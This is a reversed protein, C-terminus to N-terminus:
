AFTEAMDDLAPGSLQNHIAAVLAIFYIGITLGFVIMAIFLGIVGAGNPASGASPIGITLMVMLLGIGGIVLAVMLFLLFLKLAHGRTLQWSRGIAHIPNRQDENAVVPLVMSLRMGLYAFGMLLALSVLLGLGSSKVGAVLVASVISFAAVLAILAIIALVAVGFLTPVCRIGSAMAEGLTAQHRASCIRCSAAQHFFGIAYILVYLFIFGIMAGAGASATPGGSFASGMTVGVIGFIAILLVYYLIALALLPGFRGKFLTWAESLAMSGSFDM